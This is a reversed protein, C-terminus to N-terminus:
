KILLIFTPKLCFGRNTIIWPFHVRKVKAGHPPFRGLHCFGILSDALKLANWADDVDGTLAELGNVESSSILLDSNYQSM